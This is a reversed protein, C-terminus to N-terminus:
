AHVADGDQMSANLLATESRSHVSHIALKQPKTALTRVSATMKTSAYVDRDKVNKLSVKCCM